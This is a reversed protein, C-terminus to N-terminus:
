EGSEEDRYDVLGFLQKHEQPLSSFNSVKDNGRKMHKVKTLSMIYKDEKNKDEGDKVLCLYNSLVELCVKTKSLEWSSEFYDKWEDLIENVVRKREELPLSTNLIIQTGDPLKLKM